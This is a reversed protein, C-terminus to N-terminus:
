DFEGTHTGSIIPILEGSVPDAKLTIVSHRGSTVTISGTVGTIDTVHSGSKATASITYNLNSSTSSNYTVETAPSSSVHCYVANTLDTSTTSPTTLTPLDGDLTTITITPNNYLNSFSPDLMYTVVANKPTNLSISVDITTAAEVSFDDSVGSYYPKGNGTAADLYNDATLTYTGADVFGVFTNTVGIRELTITEHVPVNEETTGQLTFVYGSIDTLMARTELDLYLDDDGLTLMIRGKSESESIIDEQQQCSALLLLCLVAEGWGERWSTSFPVTIM